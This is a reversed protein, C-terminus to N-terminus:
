FTKKSKIGLNSPKQYQPLENATETNHSFQKAKEADTFVAKIKLGDIEHHRQISYGDIKYTYYNGDHVKSGYQSFQKSLIIGGTVLATPAGTYLFVTALGSVIAPTAAPLTLFGGFGIIMATLGLAVLSIGINALKSDKNYCDSLTFTKDYIIQDEKLHKYLNEFIWCTFKIQINKEINVPDDKKNSDYGYGVELWKSLKDLEEKIGTESQLINKLETSETENLSSERKESAKKILYLKEHIDGFSYDTGYHDKMNILRNFRVNVKQLDSDINQRESYSHIEVEDWLNPKITNSPQTM